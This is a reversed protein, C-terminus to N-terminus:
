CSSSSSSTKLSTIIVQDRHGLSLQHYIFGLETRQPTGPISCGKGAHPHEATM